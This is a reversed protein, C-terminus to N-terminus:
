FTINILKKILLFIQNTLSYLESNILIQTVNIFIKYINNQRLQSILFDKILGYIYLCHNIKYKLSYRKM